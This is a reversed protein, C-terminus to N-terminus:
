KFAVPIQDTTGGSIDEFRAQPVSSLRELALDFIIILLGTDKAVEHGALPHASGRVGVPFVEEL